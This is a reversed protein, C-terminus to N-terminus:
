ERRQFLTVADDRGIALVALRQHAAHRHRRHHGLHIALLFAAATTAASRHMQEIAGVIEIAAIGNDATAQREGDAQREGIVHLAVLQHDRAEKAVTGNRFTFKM